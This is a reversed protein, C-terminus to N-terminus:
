QAQASDRKHALKPHNCRGSIVIPKARWPQPSVVVYEEEGAGAGAGAFLVAARARRRRRRRQLAGALGPVLVRRRGNAHRQLGQGFFFARRAFAGKKTLAQCCPPVPPGHWTAEGTWIPISSLAAARLRPLYLARRSCFAHRRTRVALWRAANPYQHPASLTGILHESRFWFLSQDVRM